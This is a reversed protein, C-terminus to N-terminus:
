PVTCQTVTLDESVEGGGWSHQDVSGAPAAPPDPALQDVGHEVEQGDWANDDPEHSGPVVVGQGLRLGNRVHVADM